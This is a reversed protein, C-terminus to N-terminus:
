QVESPLFSQHRTKSAQLTEETIPEPNWARFDNHNVRIPNCVPNEATFTSHNAITGYVNLYLTDADVRVIRLFTPSGNPDNISYLAGETYPQSECGALPVMFSLLILFVIFRM